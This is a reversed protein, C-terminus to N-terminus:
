IPLSLNADKTEYNTLFDQEKKSCVTPYQRILVQIATQTMEGCSKPVRQYTSVDALIRQGYDGIFSHDFICILGGKDSEVIWIKKEKMLTTFQGLATSESKSLNPVPSLAPEDELSDSLRNLRRICEEM